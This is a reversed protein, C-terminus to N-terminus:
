REYAAVALPAPDAATEVRSWDVGEDLVVVRQTTAALPASDIYLREEHQEDGPPTSVAVFIVAVAAGVAVGLLRFGRRQATRDAAQELKIM